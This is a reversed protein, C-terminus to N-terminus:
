IALHPDPDPIRFKKVRSGSDPISFYPDPIRSPLIRIRSPLIRIQSPLIRIRSGPDAVSTIISMISMSETSAPHSQVLTRSGSGFLLYFFKSFYGNEATKNFRLVKTDKFVATLIGVPVCYYAYFSKFFKNKTPLKFAVPSFLLIGIRLGITRGNLM